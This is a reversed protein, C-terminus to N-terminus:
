YPLLLKNQELRELVRKGQATLIYRKWTQKEPFVSEVLGKEEMEKLARSINQVSRKSTQAVDSARIVPNEKFAKITLLRRDVDVTWGIMEDMPEIEGTYRM